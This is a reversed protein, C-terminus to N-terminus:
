LAASGSFPSIVQNNPPVSPPWKVMSSRPRNEKLSVLGGSKSVGPSTPPFLRYLKVM